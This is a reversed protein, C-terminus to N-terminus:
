PEAWWGPAGGTLMLCGAIHGFWGRKMAAAREAQHQPQNCTCEPAPAEHEPETPPPAPITDRAHVESVDTTENEWDQDTM